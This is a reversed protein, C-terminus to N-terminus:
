APRGNLAIWEARPAFTIEARARSPPAKGVSAFARLITNMTEDTLVHDLTMIPKCADCVYLGMRSDSAHEGDPDLYVPAVLRIGVQWQALANGELTRGECETRACLTREDTM